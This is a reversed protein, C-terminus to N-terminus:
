KAKKLNEFEWMIASLRQVNNQAIKLSGEIMAIQEPRLVASTSEVGGTGGGGYRLLLDSVVAQELRVLMKLEALLRPIHDAPSPGKAYTAYHEAAGAGIPLPYALYNKSSHMYVESIKSDVSLILGDLEVKHPGSAMAAYASNFMRFRQIDIYGELFPLRQLLYHLQEGGAAGTQAGGAGPTADTGPAVASAGTGAGALQCAKDDPGVMQSSLERVKNMYYTINNKDAVSTYTASRRKARNFLVQIINCRNARNADWDMIYIQKKGDEVVETKVRAGHEQLWSNLSAVSDLDSALLLASGTETSQTWPDFLFKEPFSDLQTKPDITGTGSTGPTTKPTKSLQDKPDTVLKNNIQDILKGVMTKLVKNDENDAKKQLYKVYEFLGPLYVRYGVESWQNTEASAGGTSADPPEKAGISGYYQTLGPNLGKFEPSEAKYVLKYNNVSVNNRELYQILFEINNLDSTKPSSEAGTIELNPMGNLQQGLGIVLYKALSLASPATAPAPAPTQAQKLITEFEKLLSPDNLFSM